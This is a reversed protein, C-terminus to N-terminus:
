CSHKKPLRVARKSALMDLAAILANRTQAPAVIDEIMSAKAAEFPSALTDKYEEALEDRRKAADEAGKLKDHWFFEVATAPELASIVATPWAIRIDANGFAVGAAGIVNGTYVSVMATTAEAYAKSLKAAQMVGKAKNDCCGAFGDVDVFSVVPLNFSDCFRVFSAIKDSCSGCLKGNAALVGVTNGGISAIATIVSKGYDAKLEVVSDKDCIANLLAEGTLDPTAETSAEGGETIPAVSINNLPLLSVLEKAKKVAAMADDAVIAAIGAEAAAKATCDGSADALYLTADKAMIVVDSSAAMMASIGVCSGAVVAIQPVVGSLNGSMSLINRYASLIEQGESIKAGNSDFIAILPAGNKVALEYIKAIKDAHAKSVAGGVVTVDQSFAYAIFGEISGYGTIVGVGEAGNAVFGDLEVFTGEDFLATIRERAPSATQCASKVETLKALRTQYNM